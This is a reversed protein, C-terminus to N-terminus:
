RVYTLTNGGQTHVDDYRGRVQSFPANCYTLKITAHYLIFNITCYTNDLKLARERSIRGTAYNVSV